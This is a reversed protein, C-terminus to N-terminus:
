RWNLRIGVDVSDDDNASDDDDEDDDDDDEDDEESHDVGLKSCPSSLFETRAERKEDDEDRRM